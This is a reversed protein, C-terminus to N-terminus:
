GQFRLTRLEEGSLRKYDVLISHAGLTEIFRIARADGDEDELDLPYESAAYRYLLIESDDLIRWSAIDAADDNGITVVADSIRLFNLGTFTRLDYFCGASLVEAKDIVGLDILYSGDTQWTHLTTYRLTGVTKPLELIAINSDIPLSSLFDYQRAM